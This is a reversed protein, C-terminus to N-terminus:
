WTATIFAPVSKHAISRLNTSEASPPARTKPASSPTRQANIEPSGASNSYRCINFTFGCILKTEGNSSGNSTVIVRSMRHSKSALLHPHIKLGENGEKSLEVAIGVCSLSIPICRLYYLVKALSCQVTSFFKSLAYELPYRTPHGDPHSSPCSFDSLQQDMLVSGFRNSM